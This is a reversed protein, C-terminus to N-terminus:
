SFDITLEDDGTVGNADFSINDVEVGSRDGPAIGTYQIQPMAITVTDTGDTLALSFAQETGALWDGYVDDDAILKSEPDFTGKTDKGVVIASEYGTADTACPRMQVDNALDITLSNVCGPASGAVTLTAEQFILPKITPLTPALITADIPPVWKGTFTWEFVVPKGVDGVIRLTGMAGALVKKTGDGYEAITGTHNVGTGATVLPAATNPSFTDTAEIMAVMPLLTDAWSPSAGAGDGFLETKFSITGMRAGVVGPLKSFYGQMERKTYEFNGTTEVDYAKFAADSASVAIATGITTEHKVALVRKRKLKAM